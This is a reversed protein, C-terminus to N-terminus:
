LNCHLRSTPTTCPQTKPDPAVASCDKARVLVHSTIKADPLIPVLVVVDIGYGLGKEEGGFEKWIRHM